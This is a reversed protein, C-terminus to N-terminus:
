WGAKRALWMVGDGVWEVIRQRNQILIVAILALEFATRLSM